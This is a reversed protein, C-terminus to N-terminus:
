KCIKIAIESLKLYNRNESSIDSFHSLYILYKTLYSLECDLPDDKWPLIPIGNNIQFAFSHVFKDIIIMDSLTKNIIIRLDKIYFGEKTKLCHKRSLVGAFLTRNPDIFNM